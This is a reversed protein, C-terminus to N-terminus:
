RSTRRALELPASCENHRKRNIRHWGFFLESRWKYYIGFKKMAGKSIEAYHLVFAPAPATQAM